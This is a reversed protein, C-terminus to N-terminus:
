GGIMHRCPVVAHRSAAKAAAIGPLQLPMMQYTDDTRWGAEISIYELSASRISSCATSLLCTQWHLTKRVGGAVASGSRLRYAQRKRTPCNLGTQRGVCGAAVIWASEPLQAPACGDPRLYRKESQVLRGQGHAYTYNRHACAEAELRYAHASDSSAPKPTIASEPPAEWVSLFPNEVNTM